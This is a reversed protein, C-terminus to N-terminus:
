RWGSGARGEPLQRTYKMVRARARAAEDVIALCPKFPECLHADGSNYLTTIVVHAMSLAYARLLKRATGFKKNDKLDLRNESM